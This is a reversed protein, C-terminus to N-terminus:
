YFGPELCMMTEMSKCGHEGLAERLQEPAPRRSALMAGAGRESGKDKLLHRPRDPRATFPFMALNEYM